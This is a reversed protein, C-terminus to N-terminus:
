ARRRVTGFYRDGFDGIGPIMYADPNLAQELSSSVIRLQPYRTALRQVGEPSALINVFIINAASVGAQELVEIACLASGGTALMPELLLVHGEAIAEPLASYFLKPAKTQRDRQILIKGVPVNDIAAGLELEMSEGARVVSVASLPGALRRGEFVAGVPTVVPQASYPLLDLSAEILLRIVRNAAQTFEAQGTGADRMVAHLARLRDTQKLLHLQPFPTNM